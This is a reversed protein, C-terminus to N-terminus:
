ATGEAGEVQKPAGNRAAADKKPRGRGRKPATEDKAVKASGRAAWRARQASAIRERAEPSLTRKKRGSGETTTGSTARSGKKKSLEPGRAAGALLERVQELRAIEADLVAVMQTTTM